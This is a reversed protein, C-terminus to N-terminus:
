LRRSQEGATTWLGHSCCFSLVGFGSFGLFSYLCRLLRLPSYGQLPKPNLTLVQKLLVAEKYWKSMKGEVIKQKLAEPMGKSSSSSSSKNSSSKNSSNNLSELAFGREQAVIAPPLDEM